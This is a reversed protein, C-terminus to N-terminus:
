TAAKLRGFCYCEDSADWQVVDFLEILRAMTVNKTFGAETSTAFKYYGCTVFKAAETLDGYFVPAGETGDSPLQANSFVIVEYGKFRHVTPDTPDPQLIPRKNADLQRDLYDFGDQNTVIVTGNLVAPDLDTNISSSLAQWTTLSKATKGTELAAIIKTNETIVAKKAFYDTVYNVLDNDTMAILVNSMAILAGYEKMAFTVRSFKPDESDALDTGDTFETLGTIGAINEVALSGSLATTTITGIVSRLSRFDRVRKNIKTSIDQPLIFGENNDGAATVPSPTLLAKEAATIKRGSLTKLVARIFSATEKTTEEEDPTDVVPSPAAGSLEKDEQASVRRQIDIKKELAEIDASLKEATEMDDGDLAKQAQERLYDLQALWKDLITM